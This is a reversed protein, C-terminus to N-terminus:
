ALYINEIVEQPTTIGQEIKELGNEMLTTMGNERAKKFITQEPPNKMILGRLEDDIELIEYVGIRGYYGTNLCHECGTGRYFTRKTDTDLGLDKLVGKVPEFETKCKPCIKRVLRQTIIGILASSSLFPSVGLQILANPATVTRNAHLTSFVLHGTLASRVAIRATESDRVEGVMIVDPDQRLISRLGNAFTLDINYDVQVQNIQDLQYEVPDEITVINREVQNLMNLASYLTTTKGSGTPGTVLVMGYPTHILKKLSEQQPESLGLEGLGRLVSSKELIRLVVKEGRNTPLSSIRFDYYKGGVDLGFHGDQPRRRETVDMNSLVKIRSILPLQLEEPIRMINQLKGDVRFRVRLGVQLPELHIDTTRTSIASEILSNALQVTSRSDIFTQIRKIEQETDKPKPKPAVSPTRKRRSKKQETSPMKYVAGTKEEDAVKVVGFVKNVKDVVDEQSAFYPKIYKGTLLSVTGSLSLLLPDPSASFLTEKKIDLPLFLERRVFREPLAAISEEDIDTQQLNVTPLYLGDEIQEVLKEPLFAKEKNVAEQFEKEGPEHKKLLKDATERPIIKNYVLIDLALILRNKKTYRNDSKEAADAITDTTIINREALATYCDAEFRKIIDRAEETTDPSILEQDSLITILEDPDPRHQNLIALMEDYDVRMPQGMALQIERGRPKSFPLKIEYSLLDRYTRLSLADSTLIDGISKGARAFEKDIRQWASEDFFGAEKFLVALRTSSVKM